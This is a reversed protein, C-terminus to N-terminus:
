AKLVKIALWATYSLYALFLMAGDFRSICGQEKRFGYGIIFLSLTLVVMVTMDRYLTEAEVAVPHIAGSIGVVALTNFLNSGIVNGLALEHEGKKAALISSALEPLSTGLAAVTLGIILDSVGLLRAMAVAGWVFIRSGAVLLVLGAVLWFIARTLPMFKESREKEVEKALSDSDQNMGQIIAWAMLIFFIVLLIVANQRSLYLDSLFFVSLVTVLTLIPLERRLVTSSVKIPSIMATMGLILAINAINSGYANGLGIGANGDVAALASVVMEPASTGFGLIVMGILLSPMGFSRAASAAGDVFRDAGWVLIVLGAIVALITLIM